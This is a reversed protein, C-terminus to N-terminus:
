RGARERLFAEIQRARTEPGATIDIVTPDLPRGQIREVAIIGFARNIPEPDNLTRIVDPFMSKGLPSRSYSQAAVLRLATDEGTLWGEGVPKDLSGGYAKGWAPKAELRRGWGRELETLTWRISRDLHCLNCANASGKAVM